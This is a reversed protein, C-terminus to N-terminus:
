NQVVKYKERKINLGNNIYNRIKEIIERSVIEGPAIIPIGPPYVYLYEAMIRDELEELKVVEFDCVLASKIDLAVELREYNVRSYEREKSDWVMEGDIEALASYLREFGSEEDMCSTMAIIYSVEAMEIQIKYRQNLISSIEEGSYNKNKIFVVLKSIDMDFIDYKGKLNTKLLKFNRLNKCKEKFRDINYCQKEFELGDTKMIFDMCRDLSELLIYSPSSSQYISLYRSIEENELSKAIHIIATQTLSLLTKHTSQIVIDAGMSIASKPFREHLSFHAGHAEDVILPVKYKKTIKSISEIDSVVGEYTPSTIYVAKVSKNKILLEEVESPSIGGNIGYEDLIQPYLYSVKLGRLFVANYAAKHSNRSMIIHDNIDCFASIASLIGVTSGNVLFISKKTGYFNSIEEMREKLIDEPNHLNDFGYIETIDYEYASLEAKIRRKHGPMHFPYYDDKAYDFLKKSLGEKV